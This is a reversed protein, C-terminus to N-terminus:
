HYIYTPFIVLVKSPLSRSSHHLLQRLLQHKLQRLKQHKLLPQWQEM